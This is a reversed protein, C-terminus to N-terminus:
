ECCPAYMSVFSPYETSKKDENGGSRSATSPKAEPQAMMRQPELLLDNSIPLHVNYVWKQLQMLNM